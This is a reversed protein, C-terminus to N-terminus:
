IKLSFAAKQFIQYEHSIYHPITTASEAFFDSAFFNCAPDDHELYSLNSKLETTRLGSPPSSSATTLDMGTPVLLPADSRLHACRTQLRTCAIALESYALESYLLDDLDKEVDLMLRTLMLSHEAGDLDLNFSTPEPHLPASSEMSSESDSWESDVSTSTAQTEEEDKDVLESAQGMNKQSTYDRKIEEYLLRKMDDGKSKLIDAWARKVVDPSLDPMPQLGPPAALSSMSGNPSTICKM